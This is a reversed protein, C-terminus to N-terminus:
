DTSAHESFFKYLQVGAFHNGFSSFHYDNKMYLKQPDTLEKAPDYLNIFPLKNEATLLQFYDLVKNENLLSDGSYKGKFYDQIPILSVIMQCNIKNCDNNLRKFLSQYLFFAEDLEARGQKLYLPRDWDASDEFGFNMKYMEFVDDFLGYNSHLYKTQLYQFFSSHNSLYWGIRKKFIFQPTSVNLAADSGLTIFKKTYVERIDNPSAMLILYDPQIDNEYKEFELMEQDISWAPSSVNIVEFKNKLFQDSDLKSQLIGTFIKNDPYDLAATYSDGLVVIRKKNKKKEWENGRFGYCNTRLEFEAGDENKNNECLNPHVKWIVLDDLTFGSRGYERHKRFVIELSVFIITSLLAIFIIALIIKFLLLRNKSFEKEESSMQSTM